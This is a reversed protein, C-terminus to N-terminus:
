LFRRNNDKIQLQLGQPDCISFLMDLILATFTIDSLIPGNIGLDAVYRRSGKFCYQINRYSLILAIEIYHQFFSRYIRHTQLHTFSIHFFLRYEPSELNVNKAQSEVKFELNKHLTRQQAENTFPSHHHKKSFIAM